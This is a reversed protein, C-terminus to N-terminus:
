KEEKKIQYWEDPSLKKEEPKESDKPVAASLEHKDKQGLKQKGMWILMTPNLMECAQWQWGRLQIKAAEQKQESFGVFSLGYRDMIRRRILTTKAALSKKDVYAQEQVLLCEAIYVESAEMSALKEVLEWDFERWKVGVAKSECKKKTM